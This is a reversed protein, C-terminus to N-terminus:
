EIGRSHVFMSLVHAQADMHSSASGQLWAWGLVPLSWLDVIALEIKFLSIVLFQQLFKADLHFLRCCFPDGLFSCDRKLDEFGPQLERSPLCCTQSAAIGLIQSNCWSFLPTSGQKETGVLWLRSGPTGVLAVSFLVRGRSLAM